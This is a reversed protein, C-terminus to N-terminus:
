FHMYILLILAKKFYFYTILLISPKILTMLAIAKIGPSYQRSVNTFSITKNRISIVKITFCKHPFDAEPLASVNIEFWCWWNEIDYEEQNWIKRSFTLQKSKEIFEEQFSYISSSLILQNKILPKLHGMRSMDILHCRWILLGDIWVSSCYVETPTTPLMENGGPGPYTPPYRLWMHLGPVDWQQIKRNINIVYFIWPVILFDMCAWYESGDLFTFTDRCVGKVQTCKSMHGLVPKETRGFVFIDGTEHGGSCCSDLHLEFVIHPFVTCKELLCTASSHLIWCMHAMLLRSLHLLSM